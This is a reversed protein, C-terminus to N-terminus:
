SESESESESESHCAHPMAEPMAGKLNSPNECTGGVSAGAARASEDEEAENRMHTPMAEPM